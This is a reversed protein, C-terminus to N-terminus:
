IGAARENRARRGREWMSMVSVSVCVCREMSINNDKNCRLDDRVANRRTAERREM